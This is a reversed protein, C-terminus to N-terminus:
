EEYTAEQLRLACDVVFDYCFEVEQVTPPENRHWDTRNLQGPQLELVVPTIAMFRRWRQADLGFTLVRATVQLEHIAEAIGAAFQAVDEGAYPGASIAIPRGLSAPVYLRSLRLGRRASQAQVTRLHGELLTHLAYAIEGIAEDLNGGPTMHQDANELYRRTDADQVLMSLRIDEFKLGDCVIPVNETFFDRVHVRANEITVSSPLMARHKFRNREQVLVEMAGRQTVPVGVTLLESWYDNFQYFRKEHYNNHRRLGFVLFMEVADHFTLIATARRFGSQRSQQLGFEYLYRVLALERIEVDSVPPM